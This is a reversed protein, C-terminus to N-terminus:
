LMKDVRSNSSSKRVNECPNPCVLHPAVTAFAGIGDSMSSACPPKTGLSNLLVATTSRGVIPKIEHPQLVRRRKKPLKSRAQAHSYFMAFNSVIVPVPLAITLVGMLACVSGVLM